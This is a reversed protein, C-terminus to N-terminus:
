KETSVKRMLHSEPLSMDEDLMQALTGAAVVLEQEEFNVEVKNGLFISLWRLSRMQRVYGRRDHGATSPQLTTRRDLEGGRTGCFPEDREALRGSPRWATPIPLPVAQASGIPM